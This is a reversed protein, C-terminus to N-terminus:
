RHLMIVSDGLQEEELLLFGDIDLLLQNFVIVFQCNCTRFLSKGGTLNRFVTMGLLM